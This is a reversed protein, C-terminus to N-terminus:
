IILEMLLRLNMLEKYMAGDNEAFGECGIGIESVMMGTRGLPRYRM